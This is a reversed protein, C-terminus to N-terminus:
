NFELSELTWRDNGEYKLVAVYNTRVMDGHANEVDFYSIVEYRNKGLETSTVDSSHWPPFEATEPAELRSKVFEESMLIADSTFPVDRDRIIKQFSIYDYVIYSLWAGSIFLPIFIAIITLAKKIPSFTNFGKEENV